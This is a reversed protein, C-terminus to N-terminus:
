VVSKRDPVWALKHYLLSSDARYPKVRLLRDAKALQQTSAIGVLQAYASDASLVLQSSRADSTGSRHCSVCQPEIITRQIRAFTGDPLPAATGTSDGGGCAALLTSLAVLVM